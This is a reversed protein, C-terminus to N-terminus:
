RSVNPPTISMEGAAKGGHFKETVTPPRQPNTHDDRDPTPPVLQGILCDTKKDPDTIKDCDPKGQAAAAFWFFTFCMVLRCLTNM